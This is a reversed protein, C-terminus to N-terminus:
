KDCIRIRIQPVNMNKNKCKRLRIQSMNKINMIKYTEYETLKNDLCAKCYHPFIFWSIKKLHCNKLKNCNGSNHLNPPELWIWIIQQLSFLSLITRVKATKKELDGAGILLDRLEEDDGLMRTGREARRKFDDAKKRLRTLEQKRDFEVM